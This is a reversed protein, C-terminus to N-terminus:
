SKRDINEIINIFDAGELRETKLLEDGVASIYTWYKEANDVAASWCESLIDNTKQMIIEIGYKDFAAYDVGEKLSIYNACLETARSIDNSAGASVNDLSKNGLIYEAARGAYLAIIQNKYENLPYLQIDDDFDSVTFGGAGSTTPATTILSVKKSTLFHTLVAHGAEHYAVIKNDYDNRDATKKIHGKLGLSLIANTVDDNNVKIKEDTNNASNIESRKVANIVAENIICEIESSSYGYTKTALESLNVDFECKSKDIYLKFIAERTNKDPLGVILKRDFRGPRVLAPDLSDARNTAAIVMINDTPVFGDMQNLLATLVTNMEKSASDGHESRKSGVADLEDIFIVCPAMKKAQAFLNSIKMSGIGVFPSSTDSANYAIFNLGTEGAFARALLTKGNGPPGELLIGKPIRAGSKKLKEDKMMRAILLLDEKVEDMGAVDKFTTKKINSDVINDNKRFQTKFMFFLLGILILPSLFTQIISLAKNGTVTTVDVNALLLDEIFTNNYPYSVYYPRTDGKLYYEVKGTSSNVIAREVEENQVQEIFVNYNTKKPASKNFSYYVSMIAITLVFAYMAIKLKRLREQKKKTNKTETM